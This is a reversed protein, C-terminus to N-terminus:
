FIEKYLITLDPATGTEVVLYIGKELVLNYFLTGISATTDIRGIKREPDAGTTSDSDYLTATNSSAGKTNINIKSLLLKGNDPNVSAPIIVIGNTNVNYEKDVICSM